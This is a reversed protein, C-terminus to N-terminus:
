LEFDKDSFMDLAMEFAHIGGKCEARRRHNRLTEGCNKCIDDLSFGEPHFGGSDASAYPCNIGQHKGWNTGCNICKAKGIESSLILDVRSSM